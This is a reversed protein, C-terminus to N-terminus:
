RQATPMVIRVFEQHQHSRAQMYPALIQAHKRLYIQFSDSAWRGKVKMVDFPVGRLLYELTSGIRIGHGQLHELGTLDATNHIVEIFKAKTLPKLKDHKGERYAFLPGNPDPRNTHFVTSELGNEDMEVRVDSPKIHINPNFANAGKLTKVTFEGLRSASYFTTTLCAFVAIHLNNSELDLGCRLTSIYDITFPQRKKKRAPAIRNAARLLAEIEEVCVDWELGHLIHWARLGCIYNRITSASYAGALDSIFAALVVKKAPARQRETLKRIDAFVHYTLLGSGYVERTSEAWAEKLVETIREMDSQPLNIPTGNLDLQNRADLPIWLRLRERALVHPRLESATLTRTPPYPRPRVAPKDSLQKNPKTRIVLTSGQQANPQTTSRGQHRTATLPEGADIIFRELEPPIAIKPLAQDSPGHIGRSPKDAPNEASVVYRTHFTINHDSSLSHIRRFILNTERNRSRGIWWGEVVGKNDGYVRIHTNPQRNPLTDIITLALLLYGVAEAWGIDRGESKWGPLLRWAGWRDGITIGIGVQSSADSFALIDLIPQPPFINRTPSKNAILEKWWALDDRVFKSPTRPMHPSNGFIGMFAELNNLYARGYPAIHCLHLLKGHLEQAQELNHTASRGWDHIAELYKLRKPEPIRVERTDLNWLFGAFPVESRFHIDKEKEWVIGLEDSVRDIDGMGYAYGDDELCTSPHAVMPSQCDEDYEEPKGDPKPKGKYWIRGGDQMRGGHEEIEAAWRRRAENYEQIAERRTRVFIHDDVWKCIPGIGKRRLLVAGADAIQGYVGAGSSLGFLDCTDIAYVDEGRLRIVTGAWQSHHLPVTRYAEKVDRVAAQSGEPLRAILLYVTEFTGWTCPFNDSDIHSNISTISTDGKGKPSPHSLNQILRFKGPKGPKPIISLPSTQFPGILTEVEARSLPGIYRGKDFESQVIQNFAETFEDISPSNPPTFTRTITPIAANFGEQIGKAMFKAESPM